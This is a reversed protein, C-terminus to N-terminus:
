CITFNYCLFQSRVLRYGTFGPPWVVCRNAVILRPTQYVRKCGVKYDFVDVDFAIAVSLLLTLLKGSGNSGQPQWPCWSVTSKLEACKERPKWDAFSRFAISHDAM